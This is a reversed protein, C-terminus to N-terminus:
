FHKKDAIAQEKAEAYNRLDTEGMILRKDM